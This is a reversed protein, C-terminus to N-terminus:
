VVKGAVMSKLHKELQHLAEKEPYTGLVEGKRFLTFNKRGGALGIDAQRAEGPGNVPCGMVAIKLRNIGPFDKRLSMVLRRVVQEMGPLDVQCRGCGPCSIIEPVFSRLGAAQLIIQGLLIEKQPSETLSVRITDGIGELLLNGIGLVSKVEALKGRGAETIGLHFPYDCKEALQRYCEVTEAVFPTKLSIILLHFDNDEFFKISDCAAQVMSRVLNGEWKLSGSNFGLRVAIARTRAERIFTRLKEKPINGPNIRIKDAGATLATLALKESYHIDAVLPVKMEKKLLPILRAEEQNLISIRILEAGSKELAKVQRLLVTFDSTPVKTMGQVSVPAQGGIFINGIRIQRTIRRTRMRDKL